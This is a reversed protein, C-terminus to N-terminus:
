EIAGTVRMFPLIVERIFPAHFLWYAPLATFLLVYVRWVQPAGSKPLLSRELVVGIGQVLFYMTPLGYGADAPLSIVSEHIAGSVLFVLLTAGSTGMKRYTPRFVLENALDRFGLNWRKGWFEALTRAAAPNRMIPEACVGCTQWLLAVVRFSGFHLLFILGAMGVWGRLVWYEASIHAAVVWYLVAGFGTNLLAWVMSSIRPQTAGGSLFADADMGPWLLLYGTKRWGAASERSAASWFTQWKLGAFIAVAMLWMLGWPPVSHRLAFAIAPLLILPAWTVVPAPGSNDARM